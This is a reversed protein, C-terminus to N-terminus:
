KLVPNGGNSKLRLAEPDPQVAPASGIRPTRPAVARPNMVNFSKAPDSSLDGVLAEAGAAGQIDPGLHRGFTALIERFRLNSLADGVVPESPTSTEQADREVVKNQEFLQGGIRNQHVEELHADEGCDIMAEPTWLLPRGHANFVHGDHIRFRGGHGGVLPCSARGNRRVFLISREGVDFLPVHSVRLIRGDPATGGAFRLWLSAKQYSGKVVQHVEFKVFTHPLAVHDPLDKASQRYQIDTVTGEFVLDAQRLMSPFDMSGEPTGLRFFGMKGGTPLPTPSAVGRLKTFEGDLAAAREVVGEPHEWMLHPKGDVDMVHLKNNMNAPRLKFRYDEVEGSDAYGKVSNVCNSGLRFRGYSWGATATAPIVTTFQQNGAVVPLCNFVQETTEWAGNRNYDIWASLFGAGSSRVNIRVTDGAVMPDIVRIGDEDDPALNLDDGTAPPNPQGDPEADIANGLFLAGVRHRAGNSALLTPYPNDPADGFDRPVVIVIPNDVVILQKVGDLVASHISLELTERGAPVAVTVKGTVSLTASAQSALAGLRCLVQNGDQTCVGQSAKSGIMSIGSPLRQAIVASAIPTPGTNKVTLQLVATTSERVFGPSLRTEIDSSQALLSTTFAAFAMLALTLQHVSLNMVPPILSTTKMRDRHRPSLVGTVAQCRFFDKVAFRCSLTFYNARFSTSVGEHKSPADQYKMEIGWRKGKALIM